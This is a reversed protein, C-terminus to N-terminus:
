TWYIVRVTDGATESSVYLEAAAAFDLTTQEYEHGPEIPYWNGAAIEGAAVGIRLKNCGESLLKFQKTKAPLPIQAEDGAVPLSIVLIAPNRSQIVKVTSLPSQSAISSM